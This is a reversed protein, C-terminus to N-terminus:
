KGKKPPQQRQHLVQIGQRFGEKEKEADIREKDTYHKMALQAGATEQQAEIRQKEIQLQHAKLMAYSADKDAKRKQDAQKIALEQMQM